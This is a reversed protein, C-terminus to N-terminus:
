FGVLRSIGIVCMRIMTMQARGSFLRAWGLSRAKCQEIFFKARSGEAYNPLFQFRRVLNGSRHMGAQFLGGLQAHEPNPVGGHEGYHRQPIYAEAGQQKAQRM